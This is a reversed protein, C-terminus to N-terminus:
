FNYVKPQALEQIKEIESDHLVDVYMVIYPDHSMEELKLPAIRLFHSKNTVYRCRLNMLEKPSRIIDQRCLKEYRVRQYIDYMEPIITLPEGNDTARINKLMTDHFKWPNEPVNIDNVKKLVEQGEDEYKNLLQNSM